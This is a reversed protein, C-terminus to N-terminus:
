LFHKILAKTTIVAIFISQPPIPISDINVSKTQKCVTVNDFEMVLYRNSQIWENLSLNPFLDRALHLCQVPVCPHPDSNPLRQHATSAVATDRHWAAARAIPRQRRGRLWTSAPPRPGPRPHNQPSPRSPRRHPRHYARRVFIPPVPLPPPSVARAPPHPFLPAVSPAAANLLRRRRARRLSIPPM